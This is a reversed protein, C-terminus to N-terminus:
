RTARIPAAALICGLFEYSIRHFWRRLRIAEERGSFGRSDPAHGRVTESGPGPLSLEMGFGRWAAPVLIPLPFEDFHEAIGLGESPGFGWAVLLGTWLLRLNVASASGPDLEAGTLACTCGDPIGLHVICSFLELDRLRM